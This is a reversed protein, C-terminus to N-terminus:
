KNKLKNILRRLWSEKKTQVAEVIADFFTIDIEYQLEEAKRKLDSYESLDVCIMRDKLHQLEKRLKAYDEKKM